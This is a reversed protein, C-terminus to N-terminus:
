RVVTAQAAGYVALGVRAHQLVFRLEAALHDPNLPVISVGLSNLALFHMFHRPHDGVGLAVRHREGWGAARYRGARADVAAGVAEFSCQRGGATAAEALFSLEPVRARVAYFAAFLSAFPAPEIDGPASRKKKFHGRPSLRWRTNL